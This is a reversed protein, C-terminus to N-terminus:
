EIAQILQETQCKIWFDAYHSVNQKQGNYGAGQVQITQGVGCVANEGV